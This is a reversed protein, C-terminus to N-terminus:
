KLFQLIALVAAIISSIFALIKYFRDMFSNQNKFAELLKSIEEAIEEKIIDTTKSGNSEIAKIIESRFGNQFKGLIQDLVKRQDEEAKLIQKQNENFITLQEVFQRTMSTQAEFLKEMTELDSRGTMKGSM